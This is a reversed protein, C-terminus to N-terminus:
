NGEFITDLHPDICNARKEFLKVQKLCRKKLGNLMKVFNKPSDCGSDKAVCNAAKEFSECYSNNKTLTKVDFMNSFTGILPVLCKGFCPITEMSRFASNKMIKPNSSVFTAVSALLLLRFM